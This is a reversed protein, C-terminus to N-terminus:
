VPAQPWVQGMRRALVRLIRLNVNQDLFEVEQCTSIAEAASLRCCAVLVHVAKV